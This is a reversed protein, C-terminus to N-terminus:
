GQVAQYQSENQNASPTFDMCKGREMAGDFQRAVSRTSPSQAELGGGGDACSPRLTPWEARRVRRMLPGNGLRRKEEPPDRKAAVSEWEENKCEKMPAPADTDTFVDDMLSVRFIFVLVILVAQPLTAM